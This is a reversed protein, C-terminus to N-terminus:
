NWIAQEDEWINITKEVGRCSCDCRCSNCSSCNCPCGGATFIAQSSISGLVAKYDNATPAFMPFTDSFLTVAHIPSKNCQCGRCSSMCRTAQYGRGMFLQTYDEQKPVVFSLESM